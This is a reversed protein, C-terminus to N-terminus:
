SSHLDRFPENERNRLLTNAEQARMPFWAAGSGLALFLHKALRVVMEYFLQCQVKPYTFIRFVWGGLRANLRIPYAVYPGDCETM